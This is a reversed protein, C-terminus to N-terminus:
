FALPMLVVTYGFVRDKTLSVLQENSQRLKNESDSGQILEGILFIGSTRFRVRYDAHTGPKLAPCAKPLRRVEFPEESSTEYCKAIDMREFVRTYITQDDQLFGVGNGNGGESFQIEGSETEEILMGSGTPETPANYYLTLGVKPGILTRADAAEGAEFLKNLKQFTFHEALLVEYAERYKYTPAETQAHVSLAACFLILSLLTKMREIYPSLRWSPLPHFV